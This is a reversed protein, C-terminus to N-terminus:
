PAKRRLLCYDGWSRAEDFVGGPLWILRSWWKSGAADLFRTCYEMEWEPKSRWDPELDSTQASPLHLAVLYDCKEPSVQQIM